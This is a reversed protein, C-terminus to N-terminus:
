IKHIIYWNWFSNVNIDYYRMDDAGAERVAVLNMTSPETGELGRLAEVRKKQRELEEDARKKVFALFELWNDEIINQCILVSQGEYM